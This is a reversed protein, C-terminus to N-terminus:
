GENRGPEQPQPAKTQAALAARAADVLAQDVCTPSQELLAWDALPLLDTLADRLAANERELEGSKVVQASLERELKSIRASLESREDCWNLSSAELQDCTQEWTLADAKSQALDRELEAVRACLWNLAERECPHGLGEGDACEIACMIFERAREVTMPDAEM